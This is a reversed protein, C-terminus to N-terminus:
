VKLHKKVARWSGVMGVVMGIVLLIGSVGYIFPEPTVLRIFPSFLQGDFHKYLAVYGFTTILIPIISGLIGLLLGELIFPIKINVNSAGVLRMISIERKRSFITIKITNSILFATVLILAVVAIISINKVVDFFSVLKSVMGEGYKVSMVEEINNIQSAVEDIKNIDTVKIHFTDSLPNEERTEYKELVVKYDESSEMMEKAITMKDKFEISEIYDFTNITDKITEINEEKIKPELFAVITMEKEVETTFNNVNYTLIIAVSVIILTITICSISALSLSFNRFVSKFSDRINRGLIRFPRM